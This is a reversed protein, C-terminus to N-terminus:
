QWIGMSLMNRFVKNIDLTYTPHLKLQSGAEDMVYHCWKSEVRSGSGCWRVWHTHTSRNSAVAMHGHVAYWCEWVCQIHRIRIHSATQPLQWCSGHCLSMMKSEVLSGSGWFRLWSTHTYSKLAAIKLGHVAYWHSWVSQKLRIHICCCSLNAVLNLWTMQVDNQSWLHGLVWLTQGFYHPYLKYELSFGYAWPCCIL